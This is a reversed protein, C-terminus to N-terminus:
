FKLNAIIIGTNRSTFTSSCLALVDQWVLMEVDKFYFAIIVNKNTKIKDFYPQNTESYQGWRM